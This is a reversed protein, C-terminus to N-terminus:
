GSAQWTLPARRRADVFNLLPLTAHTPHCACAWARPLFSPRLVGCCDLNWPARCPYGRPCARGARWRARGKGGARQCRPRPRAKTAGCSKALGRVHWFYPVGPLALLLTCIQLIELPAHRKNGERWHGFSLTGGVTAASRARWTQLQASQLSGVTGPADLVDRAARQPVGSCRAENGHVHMQQVRMAIQPDQMRDSAGPQGPQKRRAWSPRQRDPTCSM